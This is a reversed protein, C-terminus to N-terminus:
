INKIFNCHNVAWGTICTFLETRSFCRSESLPLNFAAPSPSICFYYILLFFIRISQYQYNNNIPMTSTNKKYKIINKRQSIPPLSFPFSACCPWWSQSEFLAPQLSFLLRQMHSVQEVWQAICCQTPTNKKFTSAVQM